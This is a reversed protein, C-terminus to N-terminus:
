RHFFNNYRVNKYPYNKVLNFAKNKEEDGLYTLIIKKGLNDNLVLKLREIIEENSTSINHFEM